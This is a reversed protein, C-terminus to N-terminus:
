VVAASTPLASFQKTMEDAIEEASFRSGFVEMFKFRDDFFYMAISHDVLYDGEDEELPSPSSYYIRHDKCMQATQEHTGVLGVFDPHFDKLYAAIEKLSDRRPDCSVFLPMFKRGPFRRRMEDVVRSMKNLEVPCIEPCHTFGFYMIPYTGHYEARTVPVGDTRVLTWDGGVAAEGTKRVESVKTQDAALGRAAEQQRQFWWYALPASLVVLGMQLLKVAADRDKSQEEREESEAKLRNYEELNHRKEEATLKGSGSWRLQVQRVRALAGAHQRAMRAFM